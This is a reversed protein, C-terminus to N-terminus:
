YPAGCSDCKRADPDAIVGCYFCRKGKATAKVLYVDNSLYQTLRKLAEAILETESPPIAMLFEVEVTPLEDHRVDVKFNRCSLMLDM